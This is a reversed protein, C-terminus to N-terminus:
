KKQKAQHDMAAWVATICASDFSVQSLESSEDLENQKRRM